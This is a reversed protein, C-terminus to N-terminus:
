MVHRSERLNWFHKFITGYSEQISELDVFMKDVFLSFCTFGQLVSEILGLTDGLQGLVELWDCVFTLEIFAFIDCIM